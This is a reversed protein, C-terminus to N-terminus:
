VARLRSESEMYRTGGTVEASRREGDTEFAVERSFVSLIEAGRSKIGDTKTQKEDTLNKKRKILLLM